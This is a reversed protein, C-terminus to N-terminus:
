AAQAANNYQDCVGMKGFPCYNECRVYQAPRTEISDGKGQSQMWSEAKEMTPLVRFARKRGKGKVAYSAPKAWRESDTCIRGVEGMHLDLRKAVFDEQTERPWLEIDIVQINTSPYDTESARAKSWDRVLAFVQLNEVEFGNMSM